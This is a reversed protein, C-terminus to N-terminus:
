GDGEPLVGDLWRVVQPAQLPLALFLAEHGFPVEWREPRGTREWLLDGYSAPVAGDGTGHIILVPKGVLLPALHYGDLPARELYAAALARARVLDKPPDVSPGQGSEPDWDISIAQVWEAYNSELNIGLFNVGGAILVAADYLGPERAHATPLSIAGGSMGVLVVPKDATEPREDQLHHVGAQVAYAASAARLGLEDAFAQAPGDVMGPPAVVTIRQTFRSPLSWLRLVGWGGKRFTQEVRDVIPEPTGFLGPLLVVTGRLEGAEGRWVPPSWTMWTRELEVRDDNSRGSLGFGQVHKFSFSGDTAAQAPRDGRVFLFSGPGEPRFRFGTPAGVAGALASADNREIESTSLHHHEGLWRADYAERGYALPVIVGRVGAGDQRWTEPWPIAPASDDARDAQDAPAPKAPSGDATGPGDARATIPSRWAVAADSAPVRTM